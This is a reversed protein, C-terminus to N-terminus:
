VTRRGGDRIRPRVGVRGAGGESPADRLSGTVFCYLAAVMAACVCWRAYWPREPYLVEALFIVGLVDRKVALGWAAIDGYYLYTWLANRTATGLRPLPNTERLYTRHRQVVPTYRPEPHQGVPFPRRVVPVSARQARLVYETDEHGNRFRGLPAGIRQIAARTVLGGVLPGGKPLPLSDRPPNGARRSWDLCGLILQPLALDAGAQLRALADRYVYLDDDLVWVASFDQELAWWFGVALAGACGINQEQRLAVVRAHGLLLAPTADTSANDVVLITKVDSALACELARRLTAARNRTPMVACVSNM